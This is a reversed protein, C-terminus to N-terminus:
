GISRTSTRSSAPDYGTGGCWRCWEEASIQGVGECDPCATPGTVRKRAATLPFTKTM